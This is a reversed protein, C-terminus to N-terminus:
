SQGRMWLGLSDLDSFVPLGLRKAEAIEGATGTSKAWGEVLVVADCKRLLALTGEIWAEDPAAGQFNATNLHPTLAAAGMRWVELAVAEARRVNQVIGWHTPARFPGAVYVVKM